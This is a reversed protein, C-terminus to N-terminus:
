CLYYKDTLVKHTIRTPSIQTVKGVAIIITVLLTLLIPKGKGVAVVIAM